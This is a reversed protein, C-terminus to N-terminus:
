ADITVLLTTRPPSYSPLPYSRGKCVVYTSGLFGHQFLQIFPNRNSTTSPKRPYNNSFQAVALKPHITGAMVVSAPAASADEGIAAKRM